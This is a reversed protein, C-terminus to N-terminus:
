RTEAEHSRNEQNCRQISQLDRRHMEVRSDIILDYNTKRESEDLIKRDFRDGYIQSVIESIRAENEARLRRREEEVSDEDGPQIREYADEYQTIGDQREATLATKREILDNYNRKAQELNATFIKMDLRMNDLSIILLNFLAAESLRIAKLCRQKLRHLKTRHSQLLM